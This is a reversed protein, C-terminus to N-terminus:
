VSRRALPVSRCVEPRAPHGRHLRCDGQRLRGQERYAWGRNCYAKAIKPDLRIAETYDAIAKDHDGKESMPWAVTTIRGPSGEPRAPHGRHLRCDGQRLRGQELYAIGRNYYAKAYKPNSGSPTPTTPLPKQRPRGNKEYAIGRWCYAKADKPTLRIAETYDAIAKDLEGKSESAFGRGRFAIADKADLRISESYDAISKDYEGRRQYALGRNNYAKSYKPDLRIAENCDNIAREQNGM